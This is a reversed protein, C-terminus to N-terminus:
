GMDGHIFTMKPFNPKSLRQKNYRSIAGDSKDILGYEDIDIGVYNKVNIYYM